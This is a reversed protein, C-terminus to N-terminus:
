CVGVDCVRGMADATCNVTACRTPPRSERVPELVSGFNVLSWSLKAQFCIEGAEGAMVMALEVVDEAVKVAGMTITSVVKLKVRVMLRLDLGEAFLVMATGTLILGVAGSWTVM